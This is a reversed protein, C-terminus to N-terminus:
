HRLADRVRKDAVSEFRRYYFGVTRFHKPVWLATVGDARKRILRIGEKSAVPLAVMVRKVGLRRLTKIAAVITWGRAVGDDVLLAVKGKLRRPGLGKRFAMLRRKIEGRERALAKRLYAPSEKAKLRPDWVATGDEAVAGIAWELDHEEGIKRAVVIEHPLRLRRAVAAGLIVGGRPISVVAWSEDPRYRKLVHTTLQRAAETRSNFKM